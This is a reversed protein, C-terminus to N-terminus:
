ERQSATTAHPGSPFGALNDACRSAVLVVGIAAAFMPLDILRESPKIGRKLLLMLVTTVGGVVFGMLVGCFPQTWGLYGLHIGLPTAPKM